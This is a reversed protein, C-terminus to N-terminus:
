AVSRAGGRTAAALIDIARPWHDPDADSVTHLLAAYKMVDFMRPSDNSAIGDSGLAVHVGLRRMRAYPFVGSGLKLNSVPNHVVTAGAAAVTEIDDDTLWIAHALTSRESLVGLEHLYDVLTRGFFVKGALAQLR